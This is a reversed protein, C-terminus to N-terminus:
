PEVTLQVTVNGSPIWDMKTESQVWHQMVVAPNYRRDDQLLLSRSAPLDPLQRNRIAIGGPPLQKGIVSRVVGNGDLGKVVCLDAGPVQAEGVRHSCQHRWRPWHRRVFVISDFDVEPRALLANRTVARIRHYLATWQAAPADTALTRRAQEAGHLASQLPGAAQADASRQLRAVAARARALQTDVAAPTGLKHGLSAEHRQWDALVQSPLPSRPADAAACLGCLLPATLTLVFLTRM